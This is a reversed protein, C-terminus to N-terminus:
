IWRYIFYKGSFFVNFVRELRNELMIFLELLDEFLVYFDSQEFSRMFVIFFFIEKIFVEKLSDEMGM